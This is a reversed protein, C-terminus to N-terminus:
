IGIQEHMSVERTAHIANRNDQRFREVHDKEHFHLSVENAAHCTKQSPRRTSLCVMPSRVKFMATKKVLGSHKSDNLVRQKLGLKKNEIHLFCAKTYGADVIHTGVGHSRLHINRRHPLFVPVARDVQGSDYGSLGTSSRTDKRQFLFMTDPFIRHSKLAMVLPTNGVRCVERNYHSRRVRSPAVATTTAWTNLCFGIFLSSASSKDKIRQAVTM